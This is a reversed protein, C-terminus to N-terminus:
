IKFYKKVSFIDLVQTFDSYKIISYNVYKEPGTNKSWSKIRKLLIKSMELNGVLKAADGHSLTVSATIHNPTLQLNLYDIRLLELTQVLRVNILV